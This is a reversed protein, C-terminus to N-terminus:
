AMMLIVDHNDAKGKQCSIDQCMCLLTMSVQRCMQLCGQSGGHMGANGALNVKTGWNVHSLCLYVIGNLCMIYCFVLIM